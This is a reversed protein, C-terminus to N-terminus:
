KSLIILYWLLTEKEKIEQYDFNFFNYEAINKIEDLKHRYQQIKFKKNNSWTWVNWEFERRQLFHWILLKWWPKLIRYIESFLKDIDSIHELVFFMTAIDFSDDDFPIKHELDCIKTKINNNSKPHLDLLKSSIDCATYSNLKINQFHKYMRGDGAWLDIVDLNETDRPLFRQIDLDYFSDLHKHYNKYQDFVMDYWEESSLITTHKSNYWM